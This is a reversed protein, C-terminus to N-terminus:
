QHWKCAISGMYKPATNNYKPDIFRTHGLMVNLGDLGKAARIRKPIVFYDMYTKGSRAAGTKVNWRHTAKNFYEQQKESFM